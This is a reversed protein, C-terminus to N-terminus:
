FGRLSRIEEEKLKTVLAVIKIDLATNPLTILAKAIEIRTEYESLNKKNFDYAKFSKDKLRKFVDKKDKYDSSFKKYPTYFNKSQRNFLNKFYLGIATSNELTNLKAVRYFIITLRSTFINDEKLMQLDRKILEQLLNSETYREFNTKYVVNSIAQKINSFVFEYEFLRFYLFDKLYKIDIEDNNIFISPEVEEIYFLYRKNEPVLLPKKYNDINIILDKFIAEIEDDSSVKIDSLVLVPKKIDKFIHFSTGLSCLAIVNKNELNFNKYNEDLNLTNALFYNRFSSNDEVLKDYSVVKCSSDIEKIFDKVLTFLNISKFDIILVENNLKKNKFNYLWHGVLYLRSKDINDKLDEM